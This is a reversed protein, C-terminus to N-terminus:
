PPRLLRMWCSCSLWKYSNRPTRIMYIRLCKDNQTEKYCVTIGSLSYKSEVSEFPDKATNRSFCEFFSVFLSDYLQIQLWSYYSLMENFRKSTIFYNRKKRKYSPFSFCAFYHFSGRLLITIRAFSAKFFKPNWTIRCSLRWSVLLMWSTDPLYLNSDWWYSFYCDM